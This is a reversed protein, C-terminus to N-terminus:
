APDAVELDPPLFPPGETSPVLLTAGFWHQPRWSSFLGPRGPEAGKQVGQAVRVM